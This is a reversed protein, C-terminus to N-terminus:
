IGNKKQFVNSMGTFARGFLTWCHFKCNMENLYKLLQSSVSFIYVYITMVNINKQCCIIYQDIVNSM